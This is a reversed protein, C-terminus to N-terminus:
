GRVPRAKWGYHRFKAREHLFRFTMEVEMDVKVEKLDHDTMEMLVRCGDELDVAAKTAPNIGDGPQINGQRKYM